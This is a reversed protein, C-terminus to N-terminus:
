LRSRIGEIDGLRADFAEAVELRSMRGEAYASFALRTYKGGLEKLLRVPPAMGGGGGTPKSDRFERYEDALYELIDNYQGESIVRVVSSRARVAAAQRSVGFASAVRGVKETLGEEADEWEQRFSVSPMLVAAAVHNCRQELTRADHIILREDGLDDVGCQGYYIHALEHILTFIRGAPADRSNLVIYPALPHCLSLGRAESPEVVWHQNGDPRYRSVFAGLSEVREVWWDLVREKEKSGPTNGNVGLEGRIREGLSEPDEDLSASGVWSLPSEGYEELLEIAFAQREQAQRIMWRLQRTQPRASGTQPDVGRFEPVTEHDLDPTPEDLYFVAFPVRYARALKQAQRITPLLSTKASEWAAVTAADRGTSKAAQELSCGAQERAWRLMAPTVQATVSEPMEIIALSPNKTIRPALGPM